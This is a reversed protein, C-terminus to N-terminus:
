IKRGSKKDNYIMCPYPEIFWKNIGLMEM